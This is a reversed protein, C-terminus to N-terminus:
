RFYNLISNSINEVIIEQLISEDLTFKDINKNKKIYDQQQLQKIVENVIQRVIQNEEVQTNLVGEEVYEIPKFKLNEAVNKSVTYNDIAEVIDAGMNKQILNQVDKYNYVIETNNNCNIVM